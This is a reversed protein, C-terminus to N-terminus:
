AQRMILSGMTLNSRRHAGRLSSLCHIKPGPWATNDEGLRLRSIAADGEAGRLSLLPFASPMPWERRSEAM